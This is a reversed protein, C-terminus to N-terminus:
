MEALNCDNSVTQRVFDMDDHINAGHSVIPNRLAKITARKRDRKRETEKRATYARHLAAITAELPM